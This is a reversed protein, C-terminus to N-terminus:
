YFIINRYKIGTTFFENSYNNALDSLWGNIEHGIGHLYIYKKLLFPITTKFYTDEGKKKRTDLYKLKIFPCSLTTFSPM